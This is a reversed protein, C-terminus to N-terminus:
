KKYVEIDYKQVIYEIFDADDNIMEAEYDNYRENLWDCINELHIVENDLYYDIAYLEGKYIVSGYVDLNTDVEYSKAKGIV